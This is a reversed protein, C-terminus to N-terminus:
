SDLTWHVLWNCHAHLVIDTVNEKPRRLRSVVSSQWISLTTPSTRLLGEPFNVHYRVSTIGTTSTTVLFLLCRPLTPLSVYSAILYGSYHRSQPRSSISLSAVTLVCPLKVTYESDPSITYQSCAISHHIDIQQELGQLTSTICLAYHFCLSSSYRIWRRPFRRQDM